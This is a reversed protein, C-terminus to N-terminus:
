SRSIERIKNVYINSLEEAFEASSSESIIKCIPLESDPLVLVWGDDRYVKVGEITEIVDSNKEQIIERIVKGKANWPCEVEQKNIYFDPIMDVLDSLKYNNLSMFDLIKVLAAMADFHM